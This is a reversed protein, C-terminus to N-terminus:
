TVACATSRESGNGDSGARRSRLLDLFAELRTHVGAKGTQEDIVLSLYPLDLDRSVTPMISKAIIEPMCTFPLMHIIGDFGAEAAMRMHGIVSQGEAGVHHTLYPHAHEAVEEDSHGGVPNDTSPSIWDTVYVGRELCVGREGLWPELDFNTFPELLLYFEGLFAVELVDRDRDLDMADFLAAAEREAEEIEERTWAERLIEFARNTVRSTEGREREYCRTELGRKEIRDSVQGKAFTTKFASAIERYSSGPAIAKLQRGFERWGVLNLPELVLARHEYGLSHLIRRQLDAYYGFRCPGRGGVMVTTDAGAELGEILNGITLKLPLCAMEPAHRVGLALTRESTQPPPLYEVGLREFLEAVFPTLNGMRPTTVIM